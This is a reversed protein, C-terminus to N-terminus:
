VTGTCDLKIIFQPGAVAKRIYINYIYIESLVAKIAM